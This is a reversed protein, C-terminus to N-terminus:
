VVCKISTSGLDMGGGAKLKHDAERNRPCKSCFTTPNLITSKRDMGVHVTVKETPIMISPSCDVLESEHLLKSRLKSSGLWMTVWFMVTNGLVMIDWLFAPVPDQEWSIKIMADPRVM